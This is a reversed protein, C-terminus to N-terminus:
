RYTSSIMCICMCTGSYFEVYPTCSNVYHLCEWAYEYIRVCLVYVYVCFMFMCVFCVSICLFAFFFLLLVPLKTRSKAVLLTAKPLTLSASERFSVNSSLITISLSPFSVFSGFTM